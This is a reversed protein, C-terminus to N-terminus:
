PLGDLARRRINEITAKGVVEAVKRHDRDHERMALQFEIIANNLEILSRALETRAAEFAREAPSPLPCSAM